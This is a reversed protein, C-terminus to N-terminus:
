REKKVLNKVMSDFNELNTISGTICMIDNSGSIKLGFKLSNEINDIKYIDSPMKDKNKAKNIEELAESALEELGLSRSHLSSTLILADSIKLIDKIMARHDKDKLVAFIVIVKKDKFYGNVNKIFNKIGEPNHSADAIIAPQEALIQFRGKIHFDDLSGKLRVLDVSRDQLKLYLEALTVALSLNLPQYDGLVGLDLGNYEQSIGKIDLDWGELGTKQARAVKFDKGSLYLKANKKRVKENIVKLVKPDGTLVAVSSGDKIVEVKEGAIEEITSGLIDTHELSVGTFGVLVADAANTADWRGGM